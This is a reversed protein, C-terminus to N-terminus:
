PTVVITFAGRLDGPKFGTAKDDPYLAALRASVEPALNAGHCALCVPGTPIAKMYRFVKKGNLEVYDGFEIKAPDEGAAKRAEFKELQALEWADPANKPQRLRLSTRRISMKREASKAGAIAPAATNCVSIANVPGGEAMAKQLTALLTAGFDAAAARAAASREALDNDQACAAGAWIAALLVAATGFSRRM